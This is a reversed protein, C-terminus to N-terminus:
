AILKYGRKNRRIFIDQLYNNIAEKTFLTVNEYNGLKNQLGGWIKTLCWDGLLDKQIIVKYYRTEGKRWYYTSKM